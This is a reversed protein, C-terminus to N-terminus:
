VVVGSHGFPKSRSSGTSNGAPMWLTRKSGPTAVIIWYPACSLIRTTRTQNNDKEAVTEIQSAYDEGLNRHLGYTRTGRIM